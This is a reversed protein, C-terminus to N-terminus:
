LPGASGLSKTMWACLSASLQDHVQPIPLRDLVEDVFARTLLSRAAELSIGRSRLYFIAQADMQGVTAGHTCVVDDADIRLQPRSDAEAEDSLLLNRNTQHAETKQADPRVRIRGFFVGRSRGHLVSKYLQESRCRPAAHDVATLADAHQGGSALILGNLACSAGEGALTVHTESRSLKGGLSVLHSVVTSGREQLIQLSGIHSAQEGELQLKLHEVAALPGAILETVANTFTAGRGAGLYIEVVRFRSGPEALILERPHAVTPEGEGTSIHLLYIPDEIAASVRVLAGETLFATNLAAFPHAELNVCRGLGPVPGSLRGVEVGTRSWPSSLGPAYRGDVFVLRLSGLHGLFLHGLREATIAEARRPDAPRFPTRAIGSLSTYRWDEERQTPLGRASFRAFADARMSALGDGRPQALAEFQSRYRSVAQQSEM